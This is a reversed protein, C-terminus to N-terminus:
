VSLLQPPKPPVEKYFLVIARENKPIINVSKKRTDRLFSIISVHPMKLDLHAINQLRSDNKNSARDRFTDKPFGMVNEVFFETMSDIYDIDNFTTLSKFSYFDLSDISLNIVQVALILIIINKCIRNM